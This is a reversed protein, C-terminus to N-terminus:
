TPMEAGSLRHAWAAWVGAFTALAGVNPPRRDATARGAEADFQWSADIVLQEINDQVERCSVAATSAAVASTALEEPMAAICAAVALLLAGSPQRGEDQEACVAAFVERARNAWAARPRPRARDLLRSAGRRTRNKM